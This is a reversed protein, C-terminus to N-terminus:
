QKCDKEKWKSLIKQTDKDLTTIATYKEDFEERHLAINKLIKCTTIQSELDAYEYMFDMQIIAVDLDLKLMERARDVDGKDLIQLTHNTQISQNFADHFLNNSILKSFFYIGLYAGAIFIAISAIVVILYPIIKKIM